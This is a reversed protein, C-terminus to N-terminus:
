WEIVDSEGYLSPDMKAVRLEQKHRWGCFIFHPIWGDNNGSKNLNSIEVELEDNGVRKIRMVGGKDNTNLYIDMKCDGHDRFEQTSIRERIKEGKKGILPATSIQGWDGDLFYQNKSTWIGYFTKSFFTDRGDAAFERSHDFQPDNGFRKKASM